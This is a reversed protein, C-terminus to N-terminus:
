RTLKDPASVHCSHCGSIVGGNGLQTTGGNMRATILADLMDRGKREGPDAPKPVNLAAQFKANAKEADGKRLYAEGVFAKMVVDAHPAYFFMNGDFASSVFELDAVPDYNGIAAIAQPPFNRATFPLVIRNNINKPDKAIATKMEEAGKMFKAIDRGQSQATLISGHFALAETYNPNLELIRAFVAEAKGLAEGDNFTLAKYFYVRGLNYLNTQNTEDAARAEEMLRIVEPLKSQDGALVDMFIAHGKEALQQSTQQGAAVTGAAMASTLISILIWYRM